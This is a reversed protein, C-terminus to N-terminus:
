HRNRPNKEMPQSGAFVAQRPVPIPLPRYLNRLPKAHRDVSGCLPDNRIGLRQRHQRSCIPVSPDSAERIHQHKTTEFRINHHNHGHSM